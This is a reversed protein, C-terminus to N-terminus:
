EIELVLRLGPSAGGKDPTYYSHRNTNTCNAADYHYCGGRLVHKEGTAAGAPNVQAESSYPAHWDQCWEWVNGTMDFIGLENPKKSAFAHTQNNANGVYWAVESLDNSGAYIYGQSKQGGKAAYEWEAETPLRFKLGTMKNLKQIFAQCDDWSVCEVPLTNGEFKSPNNGMIAKWLEQTVETQGIYYDSLSVHHAPASKVNSDDGMTFTGGEVFVMEFFLNAVYIMRRKTETPLVIRFGLNGGCWTPTYPYRTYPHSKGHIHGGRMVRNGKHQIPGVPNTVPEDYIYTTKYIDTCMERICGSLDYIGLENPRKQAVPSGYASAVQTYDDSGPYIYGKSRNGGRAAYEREAETPLRFDLGTMKNLQDIFALADKLQVYEIPYRAGVKPKNDTYKSQAVLDNITTGMVAEWLGQTVATEAMYYDSLTVLHTTSDKNAQQDTRDVYNEAGVGMRFTGGEVCMMNISLTDNVKVVMCPEPVMTEDYVPRISLGYYRIATSGGIYEDHMVMFSAFQEGKYSARLTNSYYYGVSDTAYGHKYAYNLGARPLFISNGNNATVQYGKIGNKTILEWNCKQYLEKWEDPTPMRWKDGWNAHAADDELDLIEKYDATGYESNTCYKTWTEPEGECWKYTKWNYTDKPETEGWSFYDGYEEPQSAGVNFTAWKVSLGLDVYEPQPVITDHVLRVAKRIRKQNYNITYYSSRFGFFYSHDKDYQNACHYHVGEFMSRISTEPPVIIGVIPLFVAGADELAKWQDKKFSQYEAFYDKGDKQHSGSKFIIGNPLIWNDPLLIMGNVGAVQAMGYLLKANTRKEMLYEWEDTSLTRWTKPADGCIENTGWDIFEGKNDEESWAFMDMWNRFDPKLYKNANGLYDYQNDAFKWLNAAPFYQLNGQSFAVHKDPAVSFIGIRRNVQTTDCDCVSGRILQKKLYEKGKQVVLYVPNFYRAEETLSDVDQGIFMTSDDVIVLQQAMQSSLVFWLGIILSLFRRM